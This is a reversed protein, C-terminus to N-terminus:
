KLCIRHIILDHYILHAACMARMFILVINFTEIQFGLPFLGSLVYLM